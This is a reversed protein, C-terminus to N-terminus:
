QSPSIQIRIWSMETTKGKDKNRKSFRTQKDRPTYTALVAHRAVILIMAPTPYM